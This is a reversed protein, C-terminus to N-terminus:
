LLLMTRSFCCYQEALTGYAPHLPQRFPKRAKLLLWPPFFNRRRHPRIHREGYAPRHRRDPTQFARHWGQLLVRRWRRRLLSFFAETYGRAAITGDPAILVFAPWGEIAYRELMRGNEPRDIEVEIEPWGHALMGALASRMGAASEDDPLGEYVRRITDVSETLGVMRLGRDKYAAYLDRVQGDIWISGPCMGWHYFLVYGGAFDAKSIAEGRTTVLSFDPAPQGVALSEM